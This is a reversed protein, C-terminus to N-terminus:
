QATGQSIRLTTTSTSTIAAIYTTGIQSVTLLIYSNGPLSYSSTTAATSSTTGIQYFLEQTGINMLLVSPGCHTLLQNASSGTVAITFAGTANVCPAFGAPHQANARLPLLCVTLLVLSAFIRYRM